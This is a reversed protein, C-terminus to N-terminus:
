INSITAPLLMKPAPPTNFPKFGQLRSVEISNSSIIGVYCVQPVAM